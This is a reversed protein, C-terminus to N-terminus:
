FARPFIMTKLFQLEPKSAPSKRLMKKLNKPKEPEYINKKYFLRLRYVIKVRIVGVNEEQRASKVLNLWNQFDAISDHKFM